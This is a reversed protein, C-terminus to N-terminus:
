LKFIVLFLETSVTRFVSAVTTTPPMGSSTPEDITLSTGHSTSKSTSSYRTSTPNAGRTSTTQRARSIITSSEPDKKTPNDTTLTPVTPTSFDFIVSNTTEKRVIQEMTSIARRLIPKRFASAKYFNGKQDTWFWIKSQLWCNARVLLKYVLKFFISGIGHKSLCPRNNLFNIKLSTQPTRNHFGFQITLPRKIICRM